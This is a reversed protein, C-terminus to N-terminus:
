SIVEEGMSCLGGMTKLKGDAYFLEREGLVRKWGPCPRGRHKRDSPLRNRSIQGRLGFAVRETVVSIWRHSEAAFDVRRVQRKGDESQMRELM